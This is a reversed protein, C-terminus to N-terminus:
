RTEDPEELKLKSVDMDNEDELIQWLPETKFIKRAMSKQMTLLLAPLLIMNCIMAAFLAACTLVGLALTGGFDSM